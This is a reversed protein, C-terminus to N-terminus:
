MDCFGRGTRHELLDPLFVSEHDRWAPPSSWNASDRPAVAPVSSPRIRKSERFEELSSKAFIEGNKRKMGLIRTIVGDFIHSVSDKVTDLTFKQNDEYLKGRPTLTYHYRVQETFRGPDESITTESTM